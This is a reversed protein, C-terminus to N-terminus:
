IRMGIQYIAAACLWAVGTQYIIVSFAAINSGFECRVANVAAICPTYLLTFVMFSLASLKSFMGSLADPLSLADIGCLVTLTSIVAEKASFGTLLAAAARWDNFGLPGFIPAIGRGIHALISQGSDSIVNLSIDFNKLFWVAISTLFIVTFARCLFDRIKDWLLRLTNKIRPLRYHPLEMIFPSPKECLATNKFILASIVGVAIGLLYLGMMVIVRHKNFFVSTFVAYVPLKASCSVFPILRATINREAQNKLTRTAMVAPVTCGFGILMPMFSRGTLGIKGFVRDAIVTVRAMYGSDEILSLFFFLLAITPVFSIVSGIGGFVGETVLSTIIPSVNHSELANCVRNQLLAITSALTDNIKGGTVTFTMYFIFFMILLFIPIALIKHLLIGDIVEDRKATYKEGQAVLNDCIRKIFNYRATAIITKGDKALKEEVELIFHEALRKEDSTLNLKEKILEDGEFLKVAAFRLPLAQKESKEKIVSSIDKLARSVADAYMGRSQYINQQLAEKEAAAILKDIGVNKSACIPVVPVGLIKQFDYLKVDGRNSYLEDMMNLAIVVPVELELLQLSLYLNREINTVDVVNIICDPKENIIFDRTIIEEGSYPSLSYVGPLDVVEINIKGRVKGLKAQVTVGPFNGVHQNLGTLQNFLTTKGCNQNGAIAFLM